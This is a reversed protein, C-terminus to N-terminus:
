GVGSVRTQARRHIDTSFKAAQRAKGQIRPRNLPEAPQPFLGLQDGDGSQPLAAANFRYAVVGRQQGRLPAHGVPTIVGRGRLEKIARAAQRESRGAMRAVRGVSPFVQSGDARAHSALVVAFQRLWRPLASDLVASVLLGSV